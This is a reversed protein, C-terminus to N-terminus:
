VAGYGTQPANMTTILPVVFGPGAMNLTTAGDRFRADFAETFDRMAAASDFGSYELWKAKGLLAVLTPDLVSVHSNKGPVDYTNTGDTWIGRSIYEYTFAHATTPPALFSVKNGNLRWMMSITIAPALNQIAQWQRNGVPGIAPWDATSDNQTQDVFAFFDAPLSLSIEKQGPVTAVVSLSAQVTLEQWRRMTMLKTAADAIAQSVRYMIPDTSPAAAEPDVTTPYEIAVARCIAQAIQAMTQGSAGLYAM